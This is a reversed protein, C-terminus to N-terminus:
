TPYGPYVAPQKEAATQSKPLPPGTAFFHIVSLLQSAKYCGLLTLYNSMHGSIFHHKSEVQLFVVIDTLNIHYLACFPSM